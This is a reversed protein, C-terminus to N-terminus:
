CQIHFLFNTRVKKIINRVYKGRDTCRDGVISTVMYSNSLIKKSYEWAGFYIAVSEAIHRPISEASGGPIDDFIKDLPHNLIKM